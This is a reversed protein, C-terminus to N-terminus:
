RPALLLFGKISIASCPSTKVSYAKLMASLSFGEFVITSPYEFWIAPYTQVASAILCPPYSGCAYGNQFVGPGYVVSASAIISLAAVFVASYGQEVLRDLSEIKSNTKIEVGASKIQEIEVDLVERPLRYEPIGVRLMGGAANLAEFVTIGYGLKALYYGATLGAPGSGM